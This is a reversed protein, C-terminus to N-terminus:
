GDVKRAGMRRLENFHRQSDDHPRAREREADSARRNHYIDLTDSTLVDCARLRHHNADLPRALGNESVGVYLVDEGRRWVYVIPSKAALLWEGSLSYSAQM